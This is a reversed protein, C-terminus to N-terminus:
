LVEQKGIVAKSVEQLLQKVTESVMSIEEPTAGGGASVPRAAPAAPRPAPMPAPRPAGPPAGPMPAPAPRPAPAPSPRPPQGGPGPQPAQASFRTLREDNGIGSPREEM